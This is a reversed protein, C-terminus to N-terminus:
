TTKKEGQLMPGPIAASKEGETWRKKMERGGEIIRWKEKTARRREKGLRKLLFEGKLGGRM